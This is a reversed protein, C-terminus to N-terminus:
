GAIGPLTTFWASDTQWSLLRNAEPTILTRELQLNTITGNTWLWAVTSTIYSAGRVMPLYISGTVNAPAINDINSTALSMSAAAGSLGILAVSVSNNIRRLKVATATWGKILLSTIDRWGSNGYLITWSTKSTGTSVWRWAGCTGATDTYYYGAGPPTVSNYPSGSGRLEYASPQGAPIGLSLALNPMTGTVGATPASGAAVPTATATLNLSAAEASAQAAAASDIVEQPTYADPLRGDAGLVPIRYTQAM